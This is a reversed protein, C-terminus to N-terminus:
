SCCVVDYKRNSSFGKYSNVKTKPEVLFVEGSITPNKTKLFIGAAPVDM